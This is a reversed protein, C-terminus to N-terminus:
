RPHLLPDAARDDDADDDEDDARDEPRGQLTKGRRALANIKQKSMGAVRALEAGSVGLGGEAIPMTVKAALVARLEGLSEVLEQHRTQARSVILFRDIAGREGHIDLIESRAFRAADEAMRLIVLAPDTPSYPSEPESM